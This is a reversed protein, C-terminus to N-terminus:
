LDPARKGILHSGVLANGAPQNRLVGVPRGPGIENTAVQQLADPHHGHGKGPLHRPAALQPALGQAVVHAVEVVNGADINQAVAQRVGVVVQLQGFFFVGAAQGLGAQVKRSLFVLLAHVGVGFFHHAADPFRGPSGIDPRKM